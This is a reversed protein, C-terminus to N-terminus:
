AVTFESKFEVDSNHSDGPQFFPLFAKWVAQWRFALEYCGNVIFLSKTYLMNNSITSCFLSTEDNVLVGLRALPSTSTLM